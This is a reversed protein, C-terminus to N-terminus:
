ATPTEKNEQYYKYGLFGVGIVAILILWWAHRTVINKIGM